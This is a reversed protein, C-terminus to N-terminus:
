SNLEVAWNYIASELKCHEKFAEVAATSPERTRPSQNLEPVSLPNKGLRAALRNVSEQFREMVGIHVFCDNLRIRFNEMTLGFPLFPLLYYFPRESVWRDLDGGYEMDVPVGKWYLTGFQKIRRLHHKWKIPTV